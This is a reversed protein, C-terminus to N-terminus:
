LVGEKELNKRLNQADTYLYAHIGLSLAADVNEQLDDTFFCESADVSESDLIYEYFKVDPKVLHMRFSPYVKDFIDYQGREIHVDYHEAIVNTGCVIKMGKRRLLLLVERTPEDIIPDFVSAFLSGCHLDIKRGTEATFVDWFEKESFEGASYKHLAKRILPSYENFTRVGEFGIRKSLEPCVTQNRILVGGMDFVCLKIM